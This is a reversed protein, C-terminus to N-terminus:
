DQMLARHGGQAAPFAVGLPNEAMRTDASAVEAPIDM